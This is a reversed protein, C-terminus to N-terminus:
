GNCILSPDPDNCSYFGPHFAREFPSVIEGDIRALPMRAVTMEFLNLVTSIKLGLGGDLGRM